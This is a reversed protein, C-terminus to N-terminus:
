KELIMYDFSKRGDPLIFLPIGVKGLKKLEDFMPDQDRIALFAKLHQMAGSIDRYEFEIGHSILENLAFITDPCVHSGYVIPKM